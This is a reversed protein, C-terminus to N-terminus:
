TPFKKKIRQQSIDEIYYVTGETYLQVELNVGYSKVEKKNNHFKREKRSCLFPRLIRRAM